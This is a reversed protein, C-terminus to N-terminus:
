RVRKRDVYLHGNRWEETGEYIDQVDDILRVGGPGRIEGHLKKEFSDYVKIQIAKLPLEPHLEHVLDVMRQRQERRHREVEIRKLEKSSIPPTSQLEKQTPRLNPYRADVEARIERNVAARVEEDPDILYPTQKCSIMTGSKRRDAKRKARGVKRGKKSKDKHMICGGKNHVITLIRGIGYEQRTWRREQTTKYLSSNPIPALRV